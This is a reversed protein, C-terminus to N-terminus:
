IFICHVFVVTGQDELSPAKFAMEYEQEPASFPRIETPYPFGELGQGALFPLAYLPATETDTNM